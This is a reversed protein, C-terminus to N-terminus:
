WTFKAQSPGERNIEKLERMDIGRVMNTQTLLLDGYMNLM